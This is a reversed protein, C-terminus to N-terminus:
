KTLMCATTAQGTNTSQLTIVYVVDQISSDAIKIRTTITGGRSGEWEAKM